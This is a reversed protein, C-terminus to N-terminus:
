SVAWKTWREVLVETNTKGSANKAEWFAPDRFFQKELNAPSTPLLAAVKPEIYKFAARNMPGYFIINHLRAQAQATAMYAAFRMALARRKTGKPVVWYNPSLEGEDWHYDVPAGQAKLAELRGNFASCMAVQRDSLLQGPEAGVTWFKTIEAKIKDLSAFAKDFDIPYIKDKPVGAALLAFAISTPDGISGARLSRPGPFRRVDWFEAWTHPRPKNAPYEATSFGMVTSFVYSGVGYKHKAEPLLNDMTEKDFGGYDIEELYKPADPRFAASPLEVLDWQVDGSDVQAKLKADTAPSVYTIKIGTDRQFPEVIAKRFAEEYSGGGSVVVLTSTQARLIGPAGLSLAATGAVAGFQVLAKRRTPLGSNTTEHTM